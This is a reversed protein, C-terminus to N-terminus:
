AFVALLLACMAFLALGFVTAKVTTVPLTMRGVLLRMRPLVAGSARHRPQHRGVPEVVGPVASQEVVAPEYGTAEVKNNSV